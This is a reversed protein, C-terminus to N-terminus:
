SRFYDKPWAFRVQAVIHIFPEFGQHPHFNHPLHAPYITMLGPRPCINVSHRMEFPLRLDSLHRSPDELVFTPAWEDGNESVATGVKAPNGSPWYAVALDSERAETHTSIHQGHNIQVGRLTVQIGDTSNFGASNFGVYHAAAQRVQTLLWRVAEHEVEELEYLRLERIVRSKQKSCGAMVLRILEPNHLNAVDPDM